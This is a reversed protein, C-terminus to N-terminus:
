SNENISKTRLRSDSIHCEITLNVTNIAMYAKVRLAKAGEVYM